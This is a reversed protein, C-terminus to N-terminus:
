HRCRGSGRAPGCTLRRGAAVPRDLWLRQVVFPPATRLGAVQGRWRGDGLGPSGAVIKDLVDQRIAM